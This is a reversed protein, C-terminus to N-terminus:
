VDETGLSLGSLAPLPRLGSVPVPAGMRRAEQRLGSATKVNERGVDRLNRSAIAFLM